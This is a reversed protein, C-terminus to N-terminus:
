LVNPCFAGLRLRHVDSEELFCSLARAIALRAAGSRSTEGGGSVTLEVDVEGLMRTFVLPTIVQERNSLLPFAELFRGENVTLKGVGPNFIRVEAFATKRQGYSTAFKRGTAEDM